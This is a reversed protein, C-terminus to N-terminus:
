LDILDSGKLYGNEKFQKLSFSCGGLRLLISDSLFAGM